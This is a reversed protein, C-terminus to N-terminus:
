LLVARRYFTQTCMTDEWDSGVIERGLEQEAHMKLKSHLGRIVLIESRGCRKLDNLVAGDPKTKEGPCIERGIEREEAGQMNLMWLDERQKSKYFVELSSTSGQPKYQNKTDIHNPTFSPLSTMCVKIFSQGFDKQERKIRQRKLMNRNECAEGLKPGQPDVKQIRGSIIFPKEAEDCIEIKPVLLQPNKTEAGLCAMNGHTDLLESKALTGPLSSSGPASAAPAEQTPKLVVAVDWFMNQGKEEQESVPLCTQPDEGPAWVIINESRIQQSSVQGVFGEEEEEEKKVTVPGWHALAVAERLEATM